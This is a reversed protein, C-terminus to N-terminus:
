TALQYWVSNLMVVNLLSKVLMNKFIAYDELSVCVVLVIYICSNSNPICYLDLLWLMVIYVCAPLIHTM